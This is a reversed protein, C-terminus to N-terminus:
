FTLNTLYILSLFTSCYLGLPEIMQGKVATILEKPYYDLTNAVTLWKRGLRWSLGCLANLMVASLMYAKNTVNLM